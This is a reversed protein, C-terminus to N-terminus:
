RGERIFRALLEGPNKSKMFPTGILFGQFGLNRLKKLDTGSTIGSESVWVGFKGGWKKRAAMLRQSVDLSVALTELNRNNVGIFSAEVDLAIKLEAEDHVEVLPTLGLRIARRYLQDLRTAGLLAVILLAADAGYAAGQILQREDVIFDKMLLRTEPFHQRLRPLFNIDGKFFVPETLVSIMTAGHNVYDHAVAVPDADRAIDGESPSARKIEAIVHPGADLFRSLVERPEFAYPASGSFHEGSNQDIRERTTKEVRALFSNPNV